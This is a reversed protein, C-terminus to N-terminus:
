QTAFHIPRVVGVEALGLKVALVGAQIAHERVEHLAKLGQAGLVIPGHVDGAAVPVWRVRYLGPLQARIALVGAAHAAVNRAGRAVVSEIQDAQRELVSEVADANGLVENVKAQTAM